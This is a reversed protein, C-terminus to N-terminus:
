TEKFREAILLIANNGVNPVFWKKEKWMKYYAKRQAKAEPRQQYAKRQAKLFDTWSGDFKLWMDKDNQTLMM